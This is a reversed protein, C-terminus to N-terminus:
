PSHEGASAKSGAPKLAEALLRSPVIGCVSTGHSDTMTHIAVGVLQGRENFVGAGSAGIPCKLDAYLREREVCAVRGQFYMEKGFPYGLLAVPEGVAAEASVITGELNAHLIVLDLEELRLM